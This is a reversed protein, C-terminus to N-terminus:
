SAPFSEASIPGTMPQKSKVMINGWLRIYVGVARRNGNRIVATFYKGEGYENQKRTARGSRFYKQVWGQAISFRFLFTFNM